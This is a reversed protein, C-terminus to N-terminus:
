ELEIVSGGLFVTKNLQIPKGFVRVIGGARVTAQVVKNANIYANGGANISVSTQETLLEKAQVTAGTGIKLEQNTAAGKLNLLGGTSVTADIKEVDLVVDLEAGEKVEVELLPQLLVKKSSVFSGSRAEIKQIPDSYFLEVTTNFGSFIRKTNMRIKLKKGRNIIVVDDIHKGSVIIKNTDSPILTIQIGDKVKLENFEGISVEKEQAFVFFSLLCILLYRM